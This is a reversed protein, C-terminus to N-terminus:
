IKSSDIDNLKAFRGYYKIAGSNYAVAAEERTVYSGLSILKRDVRIRARWKNISAQWFVGKYGSTNRKSLKNNRTNDVHRCVRLNTKRNDFGNGNIHDTVMGNPTQMILRHMLILKQKGRAGPARGAYRDGFANWKFENLYDFDEDDVLAFRGRTLKIKKMITSYCLNWKPPTLSSM